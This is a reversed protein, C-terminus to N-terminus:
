IRRIEASGKHLVQLPYPSDFEANDTQFVAPRGKGRDVRMLHDSYLSEFRPGEAGLASASGSQAVSRNNPAGPSVRVGM